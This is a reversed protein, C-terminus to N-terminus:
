QVGVPVSLKLVKSNINKLVLKNELAIDLLEDMNEIFHIKIDDKIDEPIDEEYDKKNEIPILINRMGYRHAALVKEKIGGVALVKGRLTIEGTMAFKDRVPIGTILSIISIALTVGASPGEKPVAGEPIHLHIDYDDLEATDFDLESLKLKSYTFATSLSEKMVEGLRGTMILKGKGKLLRAEILLIDGGVQTWALGVAVGIEGATLSKHSSYKPAGLYKIILDENFVFPNDETYKLKEEVIHRTIKRLVISIVRELERVGAERTYENIIKLLLEDKILVERYNLGNKEAQKKILYKKAIELKEKETYGSLEIIEMRDRLAYSINSLSNATTIFFIKSLDMEIDIFHDIFEMNQEPDLVELLASAPDGKFDSNLKDIEDLLFVPNITKAKKLGKVIQGPYAGIYTRRHGRIEAEDKVGGLSVRTFKRGLARAISKSLSSKGVGPPGVFCIIEGLPKKSHSLVAIYDLIRDKVKLLGYHDEDLIQGAKKIDIKKKDIETWPIDLLWDIYNRSVSSEASYLPMKSLKNLEVDAYKKINDPFNKESIKKKYNEVENEDYDADDNEFVQKKRNRVVSVGLVGKKLIDYVRIGRNYVNLEKLLSQKVSISVNIVSIIIDTVASLDDTGIKKFGDKFNVARKSIYNEFMRQLNISLQLEDKKRDRIEELIDLQVLEIGDPNEYSSRLKARELGKIMIRYNGSDQKIHKIIKAILGVRYLSDLNPNEDLQEKQVAFFIMGDNNKLSFKLADISKQRGILLPVVTSPFAVIERIPIVTLDLDNM